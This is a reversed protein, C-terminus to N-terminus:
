LRRSLRQHALSDDILRRWVTAGAVGDATMGNVNEFKM